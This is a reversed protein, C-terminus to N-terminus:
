KSQLDLLWRRVEALRESAGDMEFLMRKQQQSVPLLDALRWVLAAQDLESKVGEDELLRDADFAGRLVSMLHTGLYYEEVGLQRTLDILLALLDLDERVLPISDESEEFTVEGLLLGDQEVRTEGVTIRRAGKVVLGLLGNPTQSWDVINVLTGRHFIDPSKGVEKGQLVEKGVLIPVIGFPKQQAMSEKVLRLYRQEFIQLPLSVSPYLIRQLPFLPIEQPEVPSSVKNATM